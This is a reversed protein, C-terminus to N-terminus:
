LNLVICTTELSFTIIMTSVAKSFDLLRLSKARVELILCSACKEKPIIKENNEPDVRKRFSM